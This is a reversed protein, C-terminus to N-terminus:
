RFRRDLRTRGNKGHGARDVAIFNREGVAGPNDARVVHDGIETELIHHDDIIELRLRQGDRREVVVVLNLHSAAFGLWAV